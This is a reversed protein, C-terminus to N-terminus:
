SRITLFQYDLLLIGAEKKASLIEDKLSTYASEEVDQAAPKGDDGASLREFEELQSFLFRFKLNNQLPPKNRSSEVKCHKTM